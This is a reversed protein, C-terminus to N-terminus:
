ASKAVERGEEAMLEAFNRGLTDAIGQMLGFTARKQQLSEALWVNVLRREDVGLMEATERLKEILSPYLYLRYSVVKEREPAEAVLYVEGM